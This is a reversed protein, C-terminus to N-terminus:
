EPVTAIHWDFYLQNRVSGHAPTAPLYIYYPGQTSANQQDADVMAWSSSPNALEHLHKPPEDEKTYPPASYPYGFPRTVVGSSDNTVYLSVIYSLPMARSMPPTAPDAATWHRAASPCRTFPASQPTSIPAPLGLYTAIFYCLRTTDQNDYNETVGQWFPGPLQDAHDDAYMQIGTSLQKLNNLCQTRYGREKARSLVPFLLAALIAIIGIVVLLELLTFARRAKM